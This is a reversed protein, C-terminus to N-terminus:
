QLFSLPVNKIAWPTYTSLFLTLYFLVPNVFDVTMFLDSIMSVAITSSVHYDDDDDDDGMMM